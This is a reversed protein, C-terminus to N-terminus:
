DFLLRGCADNAALGEVRLRRGCAYFDIDQGVFLGAAPMLPLWGCACAASNDGAAPTINRQALLNFGARQLRLLYMEVCLSTYFGAALMLQCGLLCYAAAWRKAAPLSAVACTTAHVLNNRQLNAMLEQDRSIM